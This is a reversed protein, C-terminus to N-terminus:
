VVKTADVATFGSVRSETITFDDFTMIFTEDEKWHDVAIVQSYGAVILYDLTAQPNATHGQVMVVEEDLVTVTDTTVVSLNVNITVSSEDIKRLDSQNVELKLGKDFTGIEM